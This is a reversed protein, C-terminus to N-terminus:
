VLTASQQSIQVELAALPRVRKSYPVEEAKPRIDLHTRAAQIWYIGQM